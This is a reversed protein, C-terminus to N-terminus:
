DNEEDDHGLEKLDEVFLEKDVKAIQKFKRTIKGSTIDLEDASKSITGINRKLRDWRDAYRGFEVALLNLQKQIEESFKSREIDKLVVQATSLVSMLTTPSALWVKKEQGYIIVNEYYANIEAFIAEAPVFMIAQNATENAIIYKSSIDDIHKKLDREFLKGYRKKEEDTTEKLFMKQYNELPFKSDIALSGMPKPMHLIMDVLTNNSLKFQRQYIEPKNEGFVAEFIKELQFEGFTGRAKKDALIDSLSVVELSLKEINKQAEDIKALREVVNQFTKNTQELGSGLKEDVKKDIIQMQENIVKTVKESFANFDESSQKDFSAFNKQFHEKLNGIQEALNILITQKVNSGDTKEKNIFLYILVFVNVLLSVILLALLVYDM